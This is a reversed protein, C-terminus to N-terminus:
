PPREGPLPPPKPPPAGAQMIRTSATAAAAPQEALKQLHDRLRRDVLDHVTGEEGPNGAPMGTLLELGEDISDVAWVHFQDRTVADIVDRRLMLNPINGRPICVGQTGSLGKLRCVDFFGEIKENIGGVVQVEGHQNVSGTVAIDQRIPVEALSSLLCYLEASSASDGEVWGYSQEFTLSATVALPHERAYRNRLYGELILVGKNYTSGSLESEREINVIGGQGVGTAATIRWPWGFRIEGLDVVSLGNVQGVRRGELSLRLAGEGIMERVRAPIRGGREMRQRLAETVHEAEVRSAGAARAAHDSERVLDGIAGFEVSLKSRHGAERTGFRIIEAVASAALPLLRETKVQGAVFRAYGDRSATDRPAEPGFDARIKFIEAFDDDYALLLYYLETSGIAVVKTDIPIPEPKLAAATFLAFPDYSETLLLGTQLTRKLQKWVMPETLADGLDLILYGGNARLLSGPRIRTFDTTVRGFLNVDREITGFLNKYSPSIEVILPAGPCSANDAVVNVRYELWPDGREVVGAMEPASAPREEQPQFREPNAVMHERVRELWAAVREGPFEAKAQVFLSDLIRRIFGRAIEEVAARLERSLDQQKGMLRHAEEGLESQRREIDAREEDGLAELEKPEIPKGDKVAFFGLVGNPLRQVGMELEKARELLENYIAENRKGFEKGLRDRQASFDEAKFAEPLDHRLRSLIEAMTARLRSGQGCGLRLATPCDPEDFNHVYVWDAPTPESAARGALLSRVLEKRGTEKLGSVYINYGTQRISLGVALAGQARAQGVLENLPPLEDTTEFGLETPDLEVSLEAASLRWRHEGDRQKSRRTM